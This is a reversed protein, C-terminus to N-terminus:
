SDSSELETGESLINLYETFLYSRNRRQNPTAPTLVNKEAFLEVLSKATPYTIELKKQIETITLIPTEFLLDILTEVNAKNKREKHFSSRLREKLNIIERGCSTASEATTAVARLFFLVWEEWKGFESVERLRDYYEIRHKKLYYSIYLLPYNLIKQDYLWFTILLRGVRGNGDLFPHIMEFQAHILAIQILKPITNSPQMFLELDSLAAMMEDPPPPVFSADKLLCGSAGIWNQTIRFEGPRKNQGRVGHLLIKHIERILRLSLPLDDLREIGYNLAAVYNVVESAERKKMGSLEDVQIVDLLTAQTGEIQSSLLAEKTVYMSVFLNPNPLVTTLGDLRGIKRDAESLQTLIAETIQLPPNPPLQKPIFASYGALQKIIRGSRNRCDM